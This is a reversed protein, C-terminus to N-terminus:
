HSLRVKFKVSSKQVYAPLCRATAHDLTVVLREGKPCSRALESPRGKVAGGCGTLATSLVLTGSIARWRVEM